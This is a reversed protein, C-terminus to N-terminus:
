FPLHVFALASEINPLITDYVWFTVAHFVAARLLKPTIGDYFAGVGGSAYLDQVVQWTDRAPSADESAGSGNTNQVLTKIYDVPYVPIWSAVGSAAGFLLSALWPALIMTEDTGGIGGGIAQMLLGYVSFYIADSPIERLMTTGLGRGLFGSWGESKLVRQICEVESESKRDSSSAAQLMVKVREVPNVIFSSAFGASAAAILFMVTTPSSGTQTSAHTVEWNLVVTNVTFSCAKVLGQGVMMIRIGGLFGAMGENEYVHKMVQWTEVRDRGELEDPSFRVGDDQFTSIIKDGGPATLPSLRRQMQRNPSQTFSATAQLSTSFSRRVPDIAASSNMTQIGEMIQYFSYMNDSGNERTDDVVAITRKRKAKLNKLSTAAQLVQTKINLTDLPHAVGVGIAGALSGALLSAAAVEVAHQRTLARRSNTPRFSPTFSHTSRIVLLILCVCLVKHSTPLTVNDTVKM